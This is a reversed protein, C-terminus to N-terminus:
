AIAMVVMSVLYIYAQPVFDNNWVQKGYKNYPEWYEGIM